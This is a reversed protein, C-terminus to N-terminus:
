SFVISLCVIGDYEKHHIEHKIERKYRKSLKNKYKNVVHDISNQDPNLTWYEISKIM